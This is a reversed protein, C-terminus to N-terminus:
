ILLKQINENIRIAKKGATELSEVLMTEDQKLLKELQKHDIELCKLYDEEKRKLFGNKNDSGIMSERIRHRLGDLRFLVKQVEIDVDVKFTRFNDLKKKAVAELAGPMSKGTKM